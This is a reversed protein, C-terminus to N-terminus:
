GNMKIGAHKDLYAKIFKTTHYYQSKVTHTSINLQTAIEDNSLGQVTKLHFIERKSDTLEKLGESLIKQYESYLILDETKNSSIVRNREIQIHKLIKRKKNRMLNMVHNHMSTFLFGRINTTIKMRHDWLKIYTDHVADESLQHSKLYKFAYGYLRKHYLNYMKEYAEESGMRLQQITKLEEKESM